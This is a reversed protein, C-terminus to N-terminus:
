GGPKEDPGGTDLIVRWGEAERRWISLYWGASIEERNGDEVRMVRYRGRTYGHDGTDFMGADIPEWTLMRKPDAFTPGDLSRIAEHGRAIPGKPVIRAADPTFYSVWGDIGREAAARDFARDAEKLEREGMRGADSRVYVADFTVEWREGDDHSIEILQRVRGDDLPTLTTRDLYRGGGAVPIEGQFRVAGGELREILRKEKVGGRATARDTVWVQKWDGTAPIHYFLSTGMGGRESRWTERIACGDLITEIRNTGVRKGGAHVDWDGIWFDLLRYDDGEACGEAATAPAPTASMMMLTAVSLILTSILLARVPNARRCSRNPSFQRNSM